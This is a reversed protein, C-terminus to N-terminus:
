QEDAERVIESVDVPELEDRAGVAWALAMEAHTNALVELDDGGRSADQFEGLKQELEDFSRVELREDDSKWKKTKDKFLM